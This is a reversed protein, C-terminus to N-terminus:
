LLDHWGGDGEHVNSAQDGAGALTFAEAILEQGVDAAGIGDSVDHTGEIVGVDRVDIVLVIRLFVNIDDVGLQHQGVQLGDLLAQGAQVFFSAGIGFQLRQSILQLFNVVGQVVALWDVGDEFRFIQFAQVM